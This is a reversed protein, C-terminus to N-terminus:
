QNMAETMKMTINNLRQIQKMSMKGKLQNGQAAMKEYRALMKAYNALATPDNNQMKKLCVIYDSMYKEYDDLFRDVSPDGEGDAFIDDGGDDPLSEFDDPLDAEDEDDYSLEDMDAGTESVVFPMRKGQNTIFMGKFESGDFEGQFHGTPTGNEDTENLNMDGDDFKGSLNLKAGAGRKNYYYSGEVLSGNIDIHMTIPYKDVFGKLDYVGNTSTVKINTDEDEEETYAKLVNILNAAKREHNGANMEINTLAAQLTIKEQTELPSPLDALASKLTEAAKDWESEDWDDSSSAIESCLEDIITISDKAKKSSCSMSVIAIAIIAAISLLFNRMTKLTKMTLLTLREKSGQYGEM